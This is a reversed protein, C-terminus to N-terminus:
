LLEELYQHYEEFLDPNKILLSFVFNKVISAHSTQEKLESVLEKERGEERKLDALM